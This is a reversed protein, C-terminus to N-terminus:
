CVSLDSYYSLHSLHSEAARAAAGGSELVAWSPGRIRGCHQRETALPRDVLVYFYVAVFSHNAPVASAAAPYRIESSRSLARFGLRAPVRPRSKWRARMAVDTTTVSKSETSATITGLSCGLDLHALSCLLPLSRALHRVSKIKFGDSRGSQHHYTCM